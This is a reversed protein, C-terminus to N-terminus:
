SRPSRSGCWYWINGNPLREFDHHLLPDRYVWVVNSDWDLEMIAGAGTRGSRSVLSQESQGLFSVEQSPRGTRLLLNGNPLLYSYNIGEDSQWTQCVRGEMDILNAQYGGLNSFLTYGHFSNQPAYHILGTPHYTSWGMEADCEM